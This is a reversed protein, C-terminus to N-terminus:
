ARPGAASRALRTRRLMAGALGFGAIMLSWAGPEPVGGLDYRGSVTLSSVVFDGQARSSFVLPRAGLDSIAHWVTFSGSYDEAAGAAFSRLTRFDASGVPSGSITLMDRRDVALSTRPDPIFAFDPTQITFGSMLCGPGCGDPDYTQDLEGAGAGIAQTVGGITLKGTMVHVPLDAGINSETPSFFVVAGTSDDVTFVATFPDGGLDADPHGFVGTWDFGDRVTGTFTYTVVNAHAEGSVALLAAVAAATWFGNRM